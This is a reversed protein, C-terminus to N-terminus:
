LIGIMETQSMFMLTKDAAVFKELGDPQLGKFFAAAAAENPFYLEASGAFEQQAPEVSVNIVYGFGGVRRMLDAVNGAHVGLWHHFFENFDCGPLAGMLVVLKHFGSVTCPFPDNLTNAAVALGPGPDMVVHERTAWGTYPEAKEQFTDVPTTGHPVEPNPIVMDFWLTAVGDWVPPEGDPSEFLTAWYRSAGVKGAARARNMGAAVQPMHNAFWNAVLEDRSATPRRRILYLMKAGPTATIPDSMSAFTAVCRIDRIVPRDPLSILHAVVDEDGSAADTTQHCCQTQILGAVRNPYKFGGLRDFSESDPDVQKRMGDPLEICQAEQRGQDRVRDLRRRKRIEGFVARCDPLLRTALGGSVVPRLDGNVAARQLRYQEIGSDFPDADLADVGRMVQRPKLRGFRMRNTHEGISRVVGLDSYAAGRQDRAVADM